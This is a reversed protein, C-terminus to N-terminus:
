EHQFDKLLETLIKSERYQKYWLIFIALFYIIATVVGIALVSMWKKPSNEIGMIAFTLMILEIMTFQIVHRFLMQKLNLEKKSYTVVTPLMCAGAMAFTGIFDKYYLARQPEIIMGLSVQALLIMSVLFFFMQARSIIFDKFTM